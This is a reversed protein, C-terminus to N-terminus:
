LSCDKRSTKILERSEDLGYCHNFRYCCCIFSNRLIEKAVIFLVAAHVLKPMQPGPIMLKAHLLLSIIIVIAKTVTVAVSLRMRMTGNRITYLFYDPVFLAKTVFCQKNIIDCLLYLVMTVASIILQLQLSRPRTALRWHIYCQAAYEVLGLFSFILLGSKWAMTKAINKTFDQPTYAVGRARRLDEEEEDEDKRFVFSSDALEYSQLYNIERKPMTFESNTTFDLTSDDTQLTRETFLDDEADSKKELYELRNEEEPASDTTNTTDKSTFKELNSQLEGYYNRMSQKISGVYNVLHVLPDKKRYEHIGVDVINKSLLDQIEAKSTTFNNRRHPDRVLFNNLFDALDSGFGDVVSQLATQYELATTESLEKDCLQLRSTDVGCLELGIMGLSFADGESHDFTTNKYSEDFYEPAAYQNERELIPDIRLKMSFEKIKYRGDVKIINSPNLGKHSIMYRLNLTDLADILNRMTVLIDPKSFQVGAKLDGELLSDGLEMAYFIEYYNDEVHESHYDFIRCVSPHYLGQISTIYKYYLNFDALSYTKIYKVATYQKFQASYAKWVKKGDNESILAIDSFNSRLWSYTGTRSKM